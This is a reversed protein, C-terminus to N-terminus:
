NSIDTETNRRQLSTRTGESPLEPVKCYKCKPSNQHDCLKIIFQDNLENELHRTHSPNELQKLLIAYISGIITLEDPSLQHCSYRIIDCVMQMLRWEDTFNCSGIIHELVSKIRIKREDATTKDKERRMIDMTCRFIALHTDRLYEDKTKQPPLMYEISHQSLFLSLVYEHLNHHIIQFTSIGREPVIKREFISMELVIDIEGKDKSLGAQLLEDRFAMEELGQFRTLSFGDHYFIAHGLKVLLEKKAEYVRLCPERILERKLRSLKAKENPNKESSIKKELLKIEAARLIM